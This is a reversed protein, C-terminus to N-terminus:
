RVAKVKLKRNVDFLQGATQMLVLWIFFSNGVVYRRWLRRPEMCLRFFWEMGCIQMWTPARRVQGSLIDFTGGVGM